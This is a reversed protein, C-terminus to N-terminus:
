DRSATRSPIISTAHEGKEYIWHWTIMAHGNNAQGLPPVLIRHGGNMSLIVLV